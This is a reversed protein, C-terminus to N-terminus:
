NFTKIIKNVIFKFANADLPKGLFYQVGLSKLILKTEQDVSASISIIYPKETKDKLYNAVNFGDINPMSLDLFLISINNRKISSLAQVGDAAEIVDFINFEKLYFKILNRMTANDDAILVLKKM